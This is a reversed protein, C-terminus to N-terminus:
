QIVDGTNDPNGVSWGAEIGHYTKRMEANHDFGGAALLVAGARLELPKGDKLVEIGVARGDEVLIRRCPTNLWLTVGYRLAVWMLQAVMANGLGVLQQGTLRKAARSLIGVTKFFHKPTTFAKPLHHAEGSHFPMPLEAAMRISKGLEGLKRRDFFAYEICRGIKGGPKDPYYDPYEMAAVFQVGEGQLFRVVEPGNQLYAVKRERSSAPGVDGIVTEMYTLAEEFSDQLGAALSVPNNPIWMGGGSLSSSGGWMSGKEVMLTKLGHKAAVIAGTLAGGGSGVVIVDYRETAAAM